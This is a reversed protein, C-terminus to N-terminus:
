SFEGMSAVSIVPAASPEVRSRNIVKLFESTKARMRMQIYAKTCKVHYHLYSRLSQILDITKERVPGPAVHRPQLVFTVYAVSDSVVANTGQLEAPPIRHSYLVQPARDLRRQSQTFEQMLVKGILMDDADKFVTSFIVTVRDSIAQVYMTEDPRYHIVARRGPSKADLTPQINFFKVFVSAMCNRKLLACKRALEGHNAPLAGLDISLTVNQDCGPQSQLMEGYEQRLFDMVGHEMLDKFFSLNIGVSLRKKDSSVTIHYTVGDMDAIKHDIKLKQEPDEKVSEFIGNLIEEVANNHTELLIM